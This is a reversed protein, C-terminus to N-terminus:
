AAKRTAYRKLDPDGTALSEMLAHSDRIRQIVAPTQKAKDFKVAALANCLLTQARLQQQLQRNIQRQKLFALRTTAPSM